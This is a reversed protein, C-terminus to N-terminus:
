QVADHTAASHVNRPQEIMAIAGGHSVPSTKRCCLQNKSNGNTHIAYAALSVTRERGVDSCNSTKVPQNTDSVIAKAAITEKAARKGKTGRFHHAVPSSSLVASCTARAFLRQTRRRESVSTPRSDSLEANSRETLKAM